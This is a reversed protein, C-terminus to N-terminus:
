LKVQGGFAIATNVLHRTEDAGRIRKVDDCAQLLGAEKIWRKVVEIDSCMEPQEKVWSWIAHEFLFISCSVYGILILLPRPLLPPMPTPFSCSLTELV